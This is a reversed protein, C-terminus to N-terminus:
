TISFYTDIDTEINTRNSSKDLPWLIAEQMTGTMPVAGDYDQAGIALKTATTVNTHTKSTGSDTGTSDTRFANLNTGDAQGIGLYQTSAASGSVDVRVNGGGSNFGVTAFNGNFNRLFQAVRAVGTKDAGMIMNFSTSSDLNFVCAAFYAGNSLTTDTATAMYDASFDLAPKGNETIVATGNYIQPQDGNSGTGGVPQDAHNGNVSQDWWRTVWGTGTGCFDSIAQTDLDGNADFGINIEDDDGPNGPGMDRRIRMCLIAKDSLQRVSYAAAAGTYDYLLGSTPADTPQYILYEENINEEIDTRDGSKDTSFILIEQQEHLPIGVASWGFETYVADSVDVDLANLLAQNGFGGMATLLQARTTGTFSSGDIYYTPTGMRVTHSATDNQAIFLVDNGDTEMFASVASFAACTTWIDLDSNTLTTTLRFNTNNADRRLYPNGNLLVLDDGAVDDRLKPQQGASSPVAHNSNGSQDKWSSCLLKGSQTLSDPNFYTTGGVTGANCFEGLTSSTVGTSANSIPSDLSIRPTTFSTDWEVDAEDDHGTGSNTDRRVRMAVTVGSKLQRISFAAVAGSGYTEDLLGTFAPAGGPINLGDIQAVSPM